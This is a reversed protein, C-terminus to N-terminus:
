LDVTHTVPLSPQTPPNFQTQSPLSALQASGTATERTRSLRIVPRCAHSPRAASRSAAATQAIANVTESATSASVQFLHVIAEILTSDFAEIIHQLAHPRRCKKRHTNPKQKPFAARLTCVQKSFCGPQSCLLLIDYAVGVHMWAAAPNPTLPVRFSIAIKRAGTPSLLARVSKV